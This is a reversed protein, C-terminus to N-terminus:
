KVKILRAKEMAKEAYKPWLKKYDYSLQVWGGMPRGAAPEFIKAGYLALAETLMDGVLKFVMYEKWFMAAAKGNTAKFCFAGLMKGKTGDSINGAIEHFLEEAKTM